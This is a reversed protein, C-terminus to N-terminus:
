PVGYMYITLALKVSGSRRPMYVYICLPLLTKTCLYIDSRLMALMVANKSHPKIKTMVRKFYTCVHAHRDILLAM